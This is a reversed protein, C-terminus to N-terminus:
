LGRDARPTERISEESWSLCSGAPGRTGAPSREQLQLTEGRRWLRAGLRARRVNNLGIGSEGRRSSEQNSPGVGSDDVVIVSVIPMLRPRYRPGEGGELKRASAM